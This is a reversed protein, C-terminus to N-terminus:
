RPLVFKPTNFEAIFNVLMRPMECPEREVVRHVSNLSNVFFVATNASYPAIGVDEVTDDGLEAKGVFRVDAPSGHRCVVLDGGYVDGIMPMYLLGAFEEVPNDVHPGRVSGKTLVPTNIGIQCDMNHDYVGAGRVGVTENSPVDSGYFLARLERYFDKSCHYEIFRRWIDPLGDWSLAQVAHLDHRTNPKADKPTWLYSHPRSEMLERYLDVPLANLIIVHPYPDTAPNPANQLISLSSLTM